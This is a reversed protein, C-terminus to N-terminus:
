HSEMPEVRRDRYAAFAGAHGVVDAVDLRGGFKEKLPGLTAGLPVERHADAHGAQSVLRCRLLNAFRESSSCNLLPLEACSM